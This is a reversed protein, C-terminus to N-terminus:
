VVSAQGLASSHGKLLAASKAKGGRALPRFAADRDHPPGPMWFSLLEM